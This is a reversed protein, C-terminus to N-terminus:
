RRRKLVDLSDKLFNSPRRRRADSGNTGQLLRSISGVRADHGETAPSGCGPIGDTSGFVLNIYRRLRNGLLFISVTVGRPFSLGGECHRRVADSVKSAAAIIMLSKLQWKLVHFGPAL